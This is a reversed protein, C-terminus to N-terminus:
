QRSGFARCPAGRAVDGFKLVRLLQPEHDFRHFWVSLLHLFSYKETPLEPM